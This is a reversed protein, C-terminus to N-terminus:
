DSGRANTANFRRIAKGLELVCVEAYREALVVINDQRLTSNRRLLIPFVSHTSIILQYQKSLRGFLDGWLISQGAFGVHNDVEDLLLTSRENRRLRRSLFRREIADVLENVLGIRKEGTSRLYAHSELYDVGVFSVESDRYCDQYFVPQDDREVKAGYPLPRPGRGDSWGGRSCGSVAALTQLITTKGSGNPGFLVNIRDNFTLRKRGIGALRTPYGSTFVVSSIM